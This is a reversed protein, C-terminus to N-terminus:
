LSARPGLRAEVKAKAQAGLDDAIDRLALVVADEPEKVPLSDFEAQESRSLPVRKRVEVDGEWVTISKFAQAM